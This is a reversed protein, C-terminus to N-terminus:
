TRESVAAAGARCLVLDAAAMVRPMDYIYERVEMGYKEHDPATKSLKAEMEAYGDSGASHILRFGPDKGALEIFRCMIENMKSAGLSGWVSVM